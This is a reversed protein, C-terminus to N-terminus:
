CSGTWTVAAINLWQSTTMSVTTDIEGSYSQNVKSMRFGDITDLTAIPQNGFGLIRWSNHWQDFRDTHSTWTSFVFRVKAVSNAAPRGVVLIGYMTCDGALLPAVNTNQTDDSSIYHSTVTTTRTAASASPVGLGMALATALPLAWIAKRM